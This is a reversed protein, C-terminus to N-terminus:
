PTIGLKQLAQRASEAVASSPSIEIVKKFDAAALDNQGKAAYFNGRQFYFRAEQPNAKLALSYADIAKDLQGNKQYAIGLEQLADLDAPYVSIAAEWDTIAADLQNSRAYIRGRTLLGDLNTPSLQLLRNLDVLAAEDQNQSYANMGRWLLYDLNTPSIEIAHDLYRKAGAYDKQDMLIKGHYGLVDPDKSGLAEAQILDALSSQENGQYFYLKAREVFARTSRPNAKVALDFQELAGALNNTAEASQGAAIYQDVNEEVATAMVQNNTEAAQGPSSLSRAASDLIEVPSPLANGVMDQIILFLLFLTVLVSFIM